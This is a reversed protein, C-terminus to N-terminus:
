KSERVWYSVHCKPSFWMEYDADYTYGNLLRKVDVGPLIGCDYEETVTIKEVQYDKKSDIKM